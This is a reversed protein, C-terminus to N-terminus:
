GMWGMWPTSVTYGPAALMAPPWLHIAVMVAHCVSMTLSCGTAARLCCRRSPRQSIPIPCPHLALKDGLRQIM